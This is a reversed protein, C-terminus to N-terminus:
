RWHSHRHTWKKNLEMAHTPVGPLKSECFSDEGLAINDVAKFNANEPLLYRLKFAWLGYAPVQEATFTYPVVLVLTTIHGKHLISWVKKHSQLAKLTSTYDLSVAYFYKLEQLQKTMESQSTSALLFLFFFLILSNYETSTQPISLSWSWSHIKCSVLNLLIGKSVITTLLLTLESGSKGLM